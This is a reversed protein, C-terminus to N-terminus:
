MLLIVLRVSALGFSPGCISNPSRQHASPGLLGVGRGIWAVALPWVAVFLSVFAWLCVPLELILEFEFASYYTRAAAGFCSSNLRCNLSSLDRMFRCSSDFTNIRQLIVNRPSFLLYLTLNFHYHMPANDQSMKQQWLAAVMECLRLLVCRCMQASFSFPHMVTCSTIAIM